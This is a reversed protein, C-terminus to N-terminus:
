SAPRIRSRLSTTAQNVDTTTISVSVPPRQGRRVEARFTPGVTLSAVVTAVRSPSTLRIALTAGQRVLSFALKSRGAGAVAVSRGFGIVTRAPVTVTLSAIAPGGRSSTVTFALRGTGSAVRSLAVASLRPPSSIVWTFSASQQDGAPGSALLTVSYRGARVPTGSVIGTVAALHLGPPLGRASYSVGAPHSAAPALAVRVRSGVSSSLTGPNGIRVSAACLGALLQAADPSGLGTAMDYGTLAPYLGAHSATLDNNGTTVDHFYRGYDSGALAYLAPNVFGVPAGACGKSADALAVLAAWLPASGSTGGTGQWGVPQGSVSGDGNYYILYGSNPDADASVDPSERCNGSAAGCPRGSSSAQNVGLAPNASTQYAPMPWLASVGGGSAGLALGLLGGLNDGNNWVAESPPPGLSRLSTGGVGTVFPQAAPDGVALATDALAGGSDCGESGADGSAALITQGQVTAQEAVTQEAHADGSGEMPECQGWSDSIVQAKDQNVAAALVDFPGAGPGNDNSNPGSYVVINAQPALGILQEIDFAAEGSGAGTGAGGDVPVNTVQAHTGYCAQYAAIDATSYPELEYVAITAGAGQDGAAYAGSFDYASAIQDATFASQGPAATTAASCPQPGGTVVQARALQAARRGTLSPRLLLPHARDLGNLGIVSQVAGAIRSDLAPALSNVIASVGGPLRIRDFVLSFARALTGAAATVPLSLGGASPAGVQLGRATLSARVAAVAAATPAFQARFQSVTLYHRYEPSGPQSVAIARQALAAPDRPQLEVTIRMPTSPALAGILSSGSPLAARQGLRVASAVAPSSALVFTLGIAWAPVLGSLITRARRSM